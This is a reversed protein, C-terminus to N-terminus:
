SDSFLLNLVKENAEDVLSAKKHIYGATVPRTSAHGLAMSVIDESIDCENFAISAWSHRATYTSVSVGLDAKKSIRKMVRNCRDIVDKHVSREITNEKKSRVPPREEVFCLLHKKGAYKDILKRAPPLIKVSITDIEKKRRMTKARVYELRGRVVSEPKALLLDKFNIGILYFSLLWLDRNRREVFSLDELEIIARIEESSLYGNNSRKTQIQFGRFPYVEIGICGRNISDNIVTRINRMHVAITNVSSGKIERYRKYRRLWDKDIEELDLVKSRNFVKIDEVTQQISNAYNVRGEERLDKIYRGARYIFDKEEGQVTDGKLYTVIENINMNRSRREIKALKGDYKNFQERLEMNYARAEPHTIVLETESFQSPLVYVSTGLYRIKGKHTLAFKVNTKGDDRVQNRIVIRLKM